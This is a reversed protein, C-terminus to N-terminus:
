RNLIINILLISDLLDINDDANLDSACIDAETPEVIDLIFNIQELVDLIDINGDTNIDGYTCLPIFTHLGSRKSNGRFMSWYDSNNGEQKIDFVNISLSTGAIIELDLDGDLDYVLPASYYSFAYPIPMQNYLSGNLNLAYMDGSETGFVLEPMGDLDLDSLIVSGVIASGINIPFPPLIDGYYDIGYLMGNNDGFFIYCSNNYDLFAPSTEINAEAEFSFALSGDENIAYLYDDNSGAIILLTGDSDLITPDSNINGNTQYPFGDAISGDDYLLYINDSATGFVM